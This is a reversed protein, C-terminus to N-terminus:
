KTRAHSDLGGCVRSGPTVCTLVHLIQYDYTKLISSPQPVNEAFLYCPMLFEEDDNGNEKKENHADRNDVGGVVSDNIDEDYM